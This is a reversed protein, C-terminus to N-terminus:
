DNESKTSTGQVNMQEKLEALADKWDQSHKTKERDKIWKKLNRKSLKKINESITLM